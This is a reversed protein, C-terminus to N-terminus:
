YSVCKLGRVVTDQDSNMLKIGKYNLGTFLLEDKDPIVQELIFQLDDISIAETEIKYKGSLGTEFQMIFLKLSNVTEITRIDTQFRPFLTTDNYLEISRFKELFRAGKKIEVRNKETLLFGYAEQETALASWHNFGFKNLFSLDFLLDNWDSHNENKYKVLPEWKPSDTDCIWYRIGDGFLNLVYL